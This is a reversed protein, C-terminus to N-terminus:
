DSPFMVINICRILRKICCGDRSELLELVRWSVTINIEKRPNGQVESEIRITNKHTLDINNIMINTAKLSTHSMTLLIFGTKDNTKSNGNEKTHYIYLLSTANRHNSNTNM